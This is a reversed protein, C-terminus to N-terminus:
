KDDEKKTTLQDWTIQLMEIVGRGVELKTTDARAKSQVKQMVSAKLRYLAKTYIQAMIM